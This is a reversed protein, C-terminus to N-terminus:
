VTVPSRQPLSGSWRGMWAEFKIRRSMRGAVAVTLIAVASSQSWDCALWWSCRQQPRPIQPTKHRRIQETVASAKFDLFYIDKFSGLARVQLAWTEKRCGSCHFGM